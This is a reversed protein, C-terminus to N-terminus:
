SGDLSKQSGPSNYNKKNNCNETISKPKKM